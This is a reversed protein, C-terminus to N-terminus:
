IRAGRPRPHISTGCGQMLSPSLLSKVADALSMIASRSSAVLLVSEGALYLSELINRIVYTKGTGPPGRVISVQRSLALDVARRQTPTSHECIKDVKAAFQKKEERSRGAM